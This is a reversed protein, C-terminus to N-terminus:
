AIVSAAIPQRAPCIAEDDNIACTLFGLWRQCLARAKKPSFRPTLKSFVRIACTVFPNSNKLEKAILDPLAFIEPQGCM